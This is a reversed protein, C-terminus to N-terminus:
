SRALAQRDHGYSRPLWECGWALGRLSSPVLHVCQKTAFTGLHMTTIGLDDRSARSAAICDKQLMVPQLIVLTSVGAPCSGGVLVCLCWM